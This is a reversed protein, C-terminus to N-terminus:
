KEKKDIIIPEIKSLERQYMDNDGTWISMLAKIVPLLKDDPMQEMCAWMANLIRRAIMKVGKNLNM